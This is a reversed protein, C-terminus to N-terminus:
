KAATLSVVKSLKSNCTTSVFDLRPCDFRFSFCFVVVFVHLEKDYDQSYQNRGVDDDSVDGCSRGLSRLELLVFLRLDLGVCLHLTHQVQRGLRANNTAGVSRSSCIGKKNLTVTATTAQDGVVNHKSGGMAGAGKVSFDVNPGVLLVARITAGLADGHLSPDGM